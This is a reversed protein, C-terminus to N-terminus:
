MEKTNMMQRVEVNGGAAFIPCGKTLKTAADVDQAEGISFGGVLEKSEAFPGDTITGDAAVMKGVPLLGDGGDVMWGDKMGGEIWTMWAQLVQQMQEPSMEAQEAKMENRYVFMFKPM